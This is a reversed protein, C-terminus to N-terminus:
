ESTINNVLFVILITTIVLGIPIVITYPFNNPKYNSYGITTSTDINHITKIVSSSDQISENQLREADINICCLCVVITIAAFINNIV